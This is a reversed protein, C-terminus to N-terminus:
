RGGFVRLAVVVVVGAAWRARLDDGLERMELRPALKSDYM